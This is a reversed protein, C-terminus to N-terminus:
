SDNDGPGRRTTTARVQALLSGERPLLLAVVLCIASFIELGVSVWNHSIVAIVGAVLLCIAAALGLVLVWFM